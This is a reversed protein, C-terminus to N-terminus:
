PRMGFGALRTSPFRPNASEGLEMKRVANIIQAAARPFIERYIEPVNVRQAAATITKSSPGVLFVERQLRLMTQVDAQDQLDGRGMKSVVLDLM